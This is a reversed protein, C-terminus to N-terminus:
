KYERLQELTWERMELYQERSLKVRRKIGKLLRKREADEKIQEQVETPTEHKRPNYMSTGIVSGVDLLSVIAALKNLTMIRSCCILRYRPKTGSTSEKLEYLVWKNQPSTCVM